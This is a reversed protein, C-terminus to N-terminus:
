IVRIKQNYRGIGRDWVFWSYSTADTGKGTFSPRQSLVYLRSPPNKQWFDYRKQSELFNTRLLMVVKGSPKIIDLSKEVFEQAKNYPPNTIIVDYKNEIGEMTLFDCIYVNNAIKELTEKEGKRIEVADIYTHGRNRLVNIINGNGACPELISCHLRAIPDAKLYKHVVDLPTPYFDAEKRTTGRNTASM